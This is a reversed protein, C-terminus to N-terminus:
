EDDPDPLDADKYSKSLSLLPMRVNFYLEKIKKQGKKRKQGKKSITLRDCDSILAQQTVKLGLDAVILYEHDVSVVVYASEVYKGDGSKYIVELFSYYLIAYIRKLDDDGTELYSISMKVLLEPDVPNENMVIEGKEIAKKYEGARFADTFSKKANSSGYPHYNAQFVSGYYLHKYDELTLTTDLGILRKILEPYYFGSTSDKIASEIEDFDINSIRQSQSSWSIFFILLAVFSRM